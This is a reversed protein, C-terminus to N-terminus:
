RATITIAAVLNRLSHQSLRHLVIVVRSAPIRPVIKSEITNRAISNTAVLMIPAIRVPTSRKKKKRVTVDVAQRTRQRKM